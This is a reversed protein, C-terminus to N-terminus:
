ATPAPRDRLALAYEAAHALMNRPSIRADRLIEAREADGITGEAGNALRVVRGDRVREEIRVRGGAARWISVTTAGGGDRVRRLEAHYTRIARIRALGGIAHQAAAILTQCDVTDM